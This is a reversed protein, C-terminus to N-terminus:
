VFFVNAVRNVPTTANDAYKKDTPNPAVICTIGLAALREAYYDRRLVLYKQDGTGSYSWVEGYRDNLYVDITRSSTAEFYFTASAGANAIFAKWTNKFDDTMIHQNNVIKDVKHSYVAGTPKTVALTWMSSNDYVFLDILSSFSNDYPCFNIDDCEITSGPKCIASEDQPPPQAGKQTGYVNKRIVVGDSQDLIYDNNSETGWVSEPIHFTISFSQEMMFSCRQKLLAGNAKRIPPMTLFYHNLPKFDKINILSSVWELGDRRSYYPRNEGPWCFETYYTSKTKQEDDWTVDTIRSLLDNNFHRLLKVGNLNTVIDFDFVDGYKHLDIKDLNRCWTVQKLPDYRPLTKEDTQLNAAFNRLGTGADISDSQTFAEPRIYPGIISKTKDDFDIYDKPYARLNPRAPLIALKEFDEYNTLTTLFSYDKSCVEKKSMDYTLLNYTGKECDVMTGLQFYERQRTPCYKLMYCAQTFATTELPTGGQNILDDQLMILNSFRVKPQHIEMTNWLNHFKLYQQKMANDFMYYPTQCLPLYKLEGPGIEEWSRQTFHLTITQLHLPRPIPDTKDDTNGPMGKLAGGTAAAKPASGGQDDAARKMM